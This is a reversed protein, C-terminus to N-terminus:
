GTAGLAEDALRFTPCPHLVRCALCHKEIHGCKGIHQERIAELASRYRVREAAAEKGGIAKAAGALRVLAATTSAAESM